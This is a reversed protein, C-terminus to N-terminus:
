DSLLSFLDGAQYYETKQNRYLTVGGGGYVTWRGQPGDDIAGTEEDIGILTVHPLEKQLKLAWAQGFTNHHPLLCCGGVMNLGDVVKKEDPDYLHECLVMAGASSGAVVAGAWYADIIAHWARTAVMTQMLYGPFGGLFFIFKSCQLQAIMADDEASARNILPLVQVQGAGLRNFWKRGNKGARQHNGDPAAAAPIIVTPADNGGALTLARLDSTRMSGSFESGGQLLVHGM